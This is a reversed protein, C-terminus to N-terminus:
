PTWIEFTKWDSPIDVLKGEVDEKCMGTWNGETDNSDYEKCMIDWGRPVLEGRLLSIAMERTIRVDFNTPKVKSKILSIFDEGAKIRRSSLEPATDLIHKLIKLTAETKINM